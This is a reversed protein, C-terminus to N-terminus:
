LKVGAKALVACRSKWCDCPYPGCAGHTSQVQLFSFCSNAHPADDLAAIAADYRDAFEQIYQVTYPHSEGLRTKVVQRLQESPLSM